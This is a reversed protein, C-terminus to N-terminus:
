QDAEVAEAPADEAVADADPPAEGTLEALLALILESNSDLDRDNRLRELHEQAWVFQNIPLTLIIMRTAMDAYGDRQENVDKSRILGDEGTRPGPNDFPDAIIDPGVQEELAAQLDALDADSFGLGEVNGGMTDILASLEEVDFGGLQGTQNDAVVIRNCMDDDVDIWHVLVRDWRDDASDRQALDRFAMLTHNGALVENARGTHTGVNVTIPKYQGHAKLSAAIADVDGKRANRHFTNLESPHIATTTGVAPKTTKPSAM